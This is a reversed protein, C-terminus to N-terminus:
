QKIQEDIMKTRNNMLTQVNNADNVLNKVKDIRSSQVDITKDDNNKHQKENIVKEKKLPKIAPIVTLNDPKIWAKSNANKSDSYHWVGQEDQWKYIQPDSDDRLVSQVKSTVSNKISSLQTSIVQLNVFDATKLWPKGTPSKLVFLSGIGLVLICIMLYLFHKM